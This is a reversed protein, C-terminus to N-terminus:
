NESRTQDEPDDKGAKFWAKRQAKTMSALLLVAENLITRDSDGSKRLKLMAKSGDPPLWTSVRMEGAKTREETYRRAREATSLPKDGILPRGVPRETQKKM